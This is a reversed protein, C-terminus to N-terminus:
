SQQNILQNLKSRQEETGHDNAWKLFEIAVSARPENGEEDMWKWVQNYNRGLEEAAAKLDIQRTQIIESIIPRLRNWQNADKSM